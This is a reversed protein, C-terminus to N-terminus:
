LQAIPQPTKRSSPAFARCKWIEYEINDIHLKYLSNDVTTITTARDCSLYRIQQKMLYDAINHYVFPSKMQQTTLMMRFVIVQLFFPSM